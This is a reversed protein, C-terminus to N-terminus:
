YAMALPQCLPLPMRRFATGGSSERHLRDETVLGIGNAVAEKPNNPNARQGDVFVDGAQRERVGFVTEAFETRGAGVLGYIGVIEGAKVDLSVESVAGSIDSLERVSFITPAATLDPITRQQGLNVRRGVMAEVLSHGTVEELPLTWILQGDRLVSIRDSLGFIEEQRHSIFM